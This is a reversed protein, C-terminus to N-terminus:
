YIFFGLNVKGVHIVLRVVTDHIYCHDTVDYVKPLRCSQYLVFYLNKKESVPIIIGTYAVCSCKM